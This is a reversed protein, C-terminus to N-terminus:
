EANLFLEHVTHYLFKIKTDTHYHPMDMGLQLAWNRLVFYSKKTQFLIEVHSWLYKKKKSNTNYPIVM